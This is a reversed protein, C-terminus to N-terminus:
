KLRATKESTRTGIMPRQASAQATTVLLGWIFTFSLALLTL